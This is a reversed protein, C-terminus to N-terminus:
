ARSTKRRSSVKRRSGGRKGASAAASQARQKARQWADGIQELETKDMMERAIDFVKSEEEEVHHKVSEGLVQLEAKFKADSKRGTQLMEMLRRAVEHETYAEFMDVQEEDDEARKRLPGYFLREEISLHTTLETEIQRALESLREDGPELKSSAEFLRSVARHEQKIVSLVDM